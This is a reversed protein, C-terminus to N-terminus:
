SKEREAMLTTDGACRLNSINRGAISIDAQAEDLGANWMIHEAYLNFLCPSLICVHCVGKRIQFWDITGHLIRVTAVQAAYRKRLLCTLHSSIGMEQFIKWLQNHDVHWLIQTTLLASASTKRSSKQKKSSGVSTPLKFRSCPRHCQTHCHLCLVKQLRDGNYEKGEGYIPRM